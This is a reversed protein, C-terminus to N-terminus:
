LRLYLIPIYSYKHTDWFYNMKLNYSLKEYFSLYISLVHHCAYSHFTKAKIQMLLKM